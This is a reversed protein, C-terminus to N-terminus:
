LFLECCLQELQLAVITRNLDSADHLQGPASNPLGMTAHWVVALAHGCM